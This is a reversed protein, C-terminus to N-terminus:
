LLANSRRECWQIQSTMSAHFKGLHTLLAKNAVVMPRDIRLTTAPERGLLRTNARPSPMPPGALGKRQFRAYSGM